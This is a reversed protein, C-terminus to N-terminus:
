QKDEKGIYENFWKLGINNGEAQVINKKIMEMKIDEKTPTGKFGEDIMMDEVWGCSTKCCEDIADKLYDSIFVRNISAVTFNHKWGEYGFPDMVRVLAIDNYTDNDENDKFADYFIDKINEFGCGSIIYYRKLSEPIRSNKVKEDDTYDEDCEFSDDCLSVYTKEAMNRLDKIIVDIIADDTCELGKTIARGLSPFVLCSEIDKDM